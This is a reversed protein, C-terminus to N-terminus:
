VSDGTGSNPPFLASSSSTSEKGEKLLWIFGCTQTMNLCFYEKHKFILVPFSYSAPSIYLQTFRTRQLYVQQTPSLGALYVYM